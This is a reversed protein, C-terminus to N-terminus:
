FIGPLRRIRVAGEVDFRANSSKIVFSCKIFLAIGSVRAARMPTPIM